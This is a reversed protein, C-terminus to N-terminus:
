ARGRNMVDSSPERMSDGEEGADVEGGRRERRKLAAEAIADAAGPIPVAAPAPHWRYGRHHEEPTM